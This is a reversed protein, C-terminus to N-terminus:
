APGDNVGLQEAVDPNLHAHEAVRPESAWIEKIFALAKRNPSGPNILFTPNNKHLQYILAVGVGKDQYDPEVILDHIIIVGPKPWNPAYRLVGVVEQTEKDIAEYRHGRKFDMVHHVKAWPIEAVYDRM